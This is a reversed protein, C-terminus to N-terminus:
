RKSAHGLGCHSEQVVIRDYEASSANTKGHLKSWCPEVGVLKRSWAGSEIM